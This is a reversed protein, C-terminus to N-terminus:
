FNWSLIKLVKGKEKLCTKSDLVSEGDFMISSVICWFSFRVFGPIWIPNISHWTSSKKFFAIKKFTIALWSMNPFNFKKKSIRNWYFSIICNHQFNSFFWICYMGSIIFTISILLLFVYFICIYYWYYTIFYCAFHTM